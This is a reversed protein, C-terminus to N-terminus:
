LMKLFFRIGDDHIPDKECILLVSRPYRQLIEDPTYLPSIMFDEKPRDDSELYLKCAMMVLTLPLIYDNISYLLSPSFMEPDLCM